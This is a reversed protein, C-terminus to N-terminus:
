RWLEACAQGSPGAAHTETRRPRFRWDPRQHVTTGLVLVDRPWASLHVYLASLAAGTDGASLLDLFAIHSAERASLGATLSNAAAM